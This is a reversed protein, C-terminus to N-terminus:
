RPKPFIMAQITASGSYVTKPPGGDIRIVEVAYTGAKLGVTTTLTSRCNCRCTAGSFTETITVKEGVVQTQVDAKQCCNHHLGHTVTISAPTQRIGVEPGDGMGRTNAVAPARTPGETEPNALTLCGESETRSDGPLVLPLGGPPSFPGPLRGGSPFTPLNPRPPAAFDAVAPADSPIAPSVAAPTQVDNKSAPPRSSACGALAALGLSLLLAARTM